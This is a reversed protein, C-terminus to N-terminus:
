RIIRFYEYHYTIEGIVYGIAIDTLLVAKVRATQGESVFDVGSICVVTFPCYLRHLGRDGVILISNAWLDPQNSKPGKQNSNTM